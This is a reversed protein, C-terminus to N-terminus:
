WLLPWESVCPLILLCKSLLSSPDDLYDYSAFNLGGLCVLDESCKITGLVFLELFTEQMESSEFTRLAIAFLSLFFAGAAALVLELAVALWLRLVLYTHIHALYKCVASYRWLLLESRTSIWNAKQESQITHNPTLM